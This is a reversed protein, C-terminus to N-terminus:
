DEVRVYLEGNHYQMHGVPVETSNENIANNDIRVQMVDAVYGGIVTTADDTSGVVWRGTTDAAGAACDFWLSPNNGSGAGMQVVIGADVSVGATNDSNLVMTNNAIELTETSTTITDGSVTLDGGVAFNGSVSTIGQSANVSLVGSSATLGTGALGSAVGNSLHADDVAGSALEDSNVANNALHENDISGNKYHVSDIGDELLAKIETASQDATASAEIGDLKSKLTSTFNKQTLGGDGVSYTTNTDTATITVAGTAGSISTNNGAVISTVGANTLTVAGSTGGGSMGTGATVATIDGTTPSAWTLGGAASSKATLVYDNTPSNDSKLNAEDVVNNAITLAASGTVEGTHTANTTKSTNALIASTQGSTIGTKATNADIEALLSDALKDETVADDRIQATDIALAAINAGTIGASGSLDANVVDGSTLLKKWGAM